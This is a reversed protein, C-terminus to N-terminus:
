AAQPGLRKCIRAFLEKGYALTAGVEKAARAIEGHEALRDAFQDILSLPADIGIARGGQATLRAMNNAHGMPPKCREVFGCEILLNLRWKVSQFSRLWVPGDKLRALIALDDDTLRLLTPPASM